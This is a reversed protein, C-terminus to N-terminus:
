RLSIWSRSAASEAMADIIEAARLADHITAGVSRGTAISQVLRRAEIVKLDDYGMAVGSGPRFNILEGDGPAVYRTVFWANQYDQDLCLQLEGM